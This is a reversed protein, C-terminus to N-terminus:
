LEHSVDKKKREVSLEAALLANIWKAGGKALYHDRIAQTKPRWSVPKPKPPKTQKM